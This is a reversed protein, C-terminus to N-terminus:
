VNGEFQTETQRSSAVAITKFKGGTTGAGTSNITQAGSAQRLLPALKAVAFTHCCSDLITLTVMGETSLKVKECCSSTVNSNMSSKMKFKYTNEGLLLAHCSSYRPM